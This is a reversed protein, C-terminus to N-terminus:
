PGKYITGSIEVSVPTFGAEKVAKWLRAPRVSKGRRFEVTAIGKKLNFAVNKVNEIREVSRKINYVWAPWAVGKIIIIAGNKISPAPSRVVQNYNAACGIQLITSAFVTAMVIDRIHMTKDGQTSKLEIASVVRGINM